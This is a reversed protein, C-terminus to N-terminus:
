RNLPYEQVWHFGRSELLFRSSDMLHFRISVKHGNMDGDLALENQSPQQFHFNAKWNKDDGRTLAFTGKAADLSLGLYFMSDDMRQIRIRTIAYVIARRWRDQDSLLPPRVQGDISFESVEWIGYLPPKPRGDGQTYWTTRAVWANSSVLCLGFLLQAALALRNARPSAFLPPHSSLAPARDLLFFGALRRVDPALLIATLLILHFSLLKVPVDYTMNLVFVQTMDALCVLAGLMATRPLLLLLGGLIEACGAFCQYAPSAGIFAWLVGMPSFDGYPQVLRVFPFSMQLPVVKYMGYTFMQGALCFRVYLRFWKHLTLYNERRRDLVSWVLAAFAAIVLLCFAYVWDFTKDGSGSGTYVLPTSIHFLHAAAWFVMPRIPPLTDLEPVEINPFPLPLLSTLIQTTLCYIGFYVFAFRFTIRLPFSWRSDGAAHRSSEGSSYAGM